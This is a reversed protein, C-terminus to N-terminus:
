GIERTVQGPNLILATERNFVNVKVTIKNKELDIADVVGVFGGFAGDNVKVSEGVEFAVGGEATESHLVDVMGLFRDVEEQRLPSPNEIGGLFGIVNPTSRLNHATDGRLAAEILVYGPMINREKTVRKGNRQVFYKETPVVVQRVLGGFHNNEIERDIYEKVKTEKSSIAILVYWRFDKDEM